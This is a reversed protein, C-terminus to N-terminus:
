KKEIKMALPAFHNGINNDDNQLLIKIKPEVSGNSNNLVRKSNLNNKNSNLFKKSLDMEQTYFNNTTNYFTNKTEENEKNYPLKSLIIKLQEHIENLKRNTTEELLNVKIQTNEIKNTLENINNNIDIINQNSNKILNNKNDSIYLGNYKINTSLNNVLDNVEKLEVNENDSHLDITNYNIKMKELSLSTKNMPIQNLNNSKFINDNLDKNFKSKYENTNLFQKAELIQPNTNINRKKKSSIEISRTKLHNNFILKEKILNNKIELIDKEMQIDENNNEMQTDVNNIDKKDKNDNNEKKDKNKNNDKQEKKINNEKKDDFKKEFKEAFENSFDFTNYNTNIVNFNNNNSKNSIKKNIKLNFLNNLRNTKPNKDIFKTYDHFPTTNNINQINNEKEKENENEKEKNYINNLDAYTLDKTDNSNIQLNNNTCNILTKVGTFHTKLRSKNHHNNYNKNNVLYIQNNYNQTKGRNKRREHVKSNNDFLNNKEKMNYKISRNDYNSNEDYNNFYDNNRISNVETKSDNYYYENGKFKGENLQFQEDYNNKQNNKINNLELRIDLNDNNYNYNNNTNNYNLNSKYQNLDINNINKNKSNNETFNKINKMNPNFTVNKINNNQENENKDNPIKKNNSEIYRKVQSQIGYLKIKQNKVKNDNINNSQEKKAYNKNNDGVETLLDPVVNDLENKKSVDTNKNMEKLEQIKIIDGINKRFKVNKLLESLENFAQKISKFEIDIEEYKNFLNKHLEEYKKFHEQYRKELNDKYNDLDKQAVKFQECENVLELTFKSNEIRLNQIKEETEDIRNLLLKEVNKVSKNCFDKFSNTVYDIQLGFSKINNELKEKYSKLDIINKDKNTNLIQLTKNIYELFDRLSKFKSTETGIIGPLTLNWNLIKDFKFNTNDIEKELKETRIDLKMILEEINTQIKKLKEIDENNNKKNQSNMSNFFEEFKENLINNKTDNQSFLSKLEEISAEIKSNLKSELKKMDGLVENQFFMLDGKTVEAM